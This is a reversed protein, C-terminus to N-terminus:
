GLFRDHTEKPYKFLHKWFTTKCKRPKWFYLDDLYLATYFGNMSKGIFYNNEGYDKALFFNGIKFKVEYGSTM